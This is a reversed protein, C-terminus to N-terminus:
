KGRGGRGGRKPTQKGRNVGSPNSGGKGKPKNAKAPKRQQNAMKQFEAKLRKELSSIEDRITERTPQESSADKMETDTDKKLSLTRTKEILSRDANARAIAVAKWHFQDGYHYVTRCEEQVQQSVSGTWHPTLVKEKTEKISFTSGFMQAARIAVECVSAHWRIQDFSVKGQLVSQEEKKRELYVELMAKRAAHTSSKLLGEAQAGKETGLYEKAFQVKPDKISNRIPAPFSGDAQHRTLQAIANTTNSLKNAIYFAEKLHVALVPRWTQPIVSILETLTSCNRVSSAVGTATGYSVDLSRVSNPAM